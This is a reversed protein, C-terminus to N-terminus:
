NQGLSVFNKNINEINLIANSRFPNKVYSWGNTEGNKHFRMQM